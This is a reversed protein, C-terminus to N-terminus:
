AETESHHRRYDEAAKNLQACYQEVTRCFEELLLLRARAEIREILGPDNERLASFLEEVKATKETRKNAAMRFFVGLAVNIPNGRRISSALSSKARDSLFEFLRAATETPISSLQKGKKGAPKQGPDEAVPEANVDLVTTDTQASEVPQPGMRNQYKYIELSSVADKDSVKGKKEAHALTFEWCPIWHEEPLEGIMEIKRGTPRRLIKGARQFTFLVRGRKIQRDAHQRSVGRALALDAVIGTRGQARGVDYIIAMAIEILVEISPSSRIFGSLAELLDGQQETLSSHQAANVLQDHVTVCAELLQPSVAPSCSGGMYTKLVVQLSQETKKTPTKVIGVFGVRGSRPLPLERM